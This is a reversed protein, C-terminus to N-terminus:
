ENEKSNKIMNEKLAVSLSQKRTKYATILQVYSMSAHYKEFSQTRTLAFALPRDNWRGILMSTDNVTDERFPSDQGEKSYIIQDHGQERGLDREIVSLCRHTTLLRQEFPHFPDEGSWGSTIRVLRM